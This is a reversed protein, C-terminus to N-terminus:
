HDHTRREILAEGLALAAHDSESDASTDGDLYRALILRLAGRPVSVRLNHDHLECRDAERAAPNSPECRPCARM